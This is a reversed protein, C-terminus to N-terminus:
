LQQEYHRRCRFIVMIVITGKICPLTVFRMKQLRGAGDLDAAEYLEQDVGTIAALYIISGWGIGKWLDSFIVLPYFASKEGMIFM